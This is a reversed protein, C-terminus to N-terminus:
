KDVIRIDVRRNYQQEEESNEKLAAGHTIGLGKYTIRGKDIGKDILFETVTRARAHSLFEGTGDEYVDYPTDDTNKDSMKSLKYTPTGPQSIICCIHGEIAIRIKPNDALIRYLSDLQPNSTPILKHSGPYFFIKNLSVLQGASLKTLETLAHSEQKAPIQPQPKLKPAKVTKPPEPGKKVINVRRDPQYGDKSSMDDRDIKGKGVCLEIDRVLFDKSVLYVMVNEARQYSLSDNKRKGGIYDCYGIISIPEGRKLVRKKILSDITKTAAADLEAKGLPFYVTLSDGAYCYVSAVFFLATLLLSRFMFM